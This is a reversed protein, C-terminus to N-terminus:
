KLDHELGFESCNTCIYAARRRIIAEYFKADFLSKRSALKGNLQARQFNARTKCRLLAGRV